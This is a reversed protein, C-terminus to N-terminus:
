KWALAIIVFFIIAYMRRFALETAECVFHSCTTDIIQAILWSLIAFVAPLIYIELDKFPNRLSNTECYVTKLAEIETALKIRATAIAVESGMTAVDEFLEYACGSAKEHHEVLIHEKIFKSTPGAVTDMQSIYLERALDYANRNNAESTAELMTMAKPFSGKGERDTDQFMRCYVTFFQQLETGTLARNNIFKPELNEDFVLRVYRNLLGRFSGEIKNIAGNFTKKTVHFGPHPLLFCDVSDFCRVIQERTTQLDAMGRDKIVNFLYTDMSQRLTAYVTDQTERDDPPVEEDWDVDFNQWDRVLFQLRQFPKTIGSKARALKAAPPPVPPAPPVASVSVSVSVSASAATAKPTGKSTVSVFGDEGEKGELSESSVSSGLSAQPSGEPAPPPPLAEGATDVPVPM